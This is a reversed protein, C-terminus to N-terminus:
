ILSISEFKIKLKLSIKFQSCNEKSSQQTKFLSFTKISSTLLFMLQKSIETAVSLIYEKTQSTKQSQYKSSKLTLRLFLKLPQQEKIKFM